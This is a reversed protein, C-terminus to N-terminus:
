ADQEKEIVVELEEHLSHFSELFCQQCILFEKEKTIDIDLEREASFVSALSMSGGLMQVLGLERNIANANLLCHKVKVKYFFPNIAAGCKQCPRLDKLEM